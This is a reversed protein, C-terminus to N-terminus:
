EGKAVKRWTRGTRESVAYQRAIEAATMGAIIKRDEEPLDRFRAPVKEGVETAEAKETQKRETAPLIGTLLETHQARIALTVAAPISLLSLVGRAVLPMYLWEEPWELLVNVILIIALYFLFMSGALATPRKKYEALRRRNFQWFTITTHVTALGLIEVVGALVGAVFPTFGLHNVMGGYSMYAPALPAGWPAIASLLNVLSNETERIFSNVREFINSKL